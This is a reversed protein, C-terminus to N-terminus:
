KLSKLIPNLFKLLDEHEKLAQNVINNNNKNKLGDSKDSKLRWNFRNVNAKIYEKRASKTDSASVNKSDTNM